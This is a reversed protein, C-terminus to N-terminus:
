IGGCNETVSKRIATKTERPVNENKIEERAAACIGRKYECSQDAAYRACNELTGNQLCIKDAADFVSPFFRFAPVLYDRNTYVRSSGGDGCNDFYIPAFDADVGAHSPMATTLGLIFVIASAMATLTVIALLDKIAKM